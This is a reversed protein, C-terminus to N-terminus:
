RSHIISGQLGGGLGLDKEKKILKPSSNVIMELM